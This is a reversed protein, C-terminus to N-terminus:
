CVAERVDLHKQMYARVLGKGRAAQAVLSIKPDVLHSQRSSISVLRAILGRRGAEPIAVLEKM